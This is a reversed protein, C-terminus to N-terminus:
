QQSGKSIEEKIDESQHVTRFYPLKFLAIKLNLLNLHPSFAPEKVSFPQITEMVNELANGIAGASQGKFFHLYKIQLWARQVIKQKLGFPLGTCYLM